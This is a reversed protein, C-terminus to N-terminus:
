AAVEATRIRSIVWAVETPHANLWFQAEQLQQSILDETTNNRIGNWIIADQAYAINAIPRAARIRTLADVVEFGNALMAAFAMSPARNIGMHCHVLVQGGDSVSKNIVDVGSDFWELTQNGGNDHTGLWWYSMDPAYQAVFKKDSWEGRLDVVDTIGINIWNALQNVAAQPDQTDLDGCVYIGSIVQCPRRWVSVPDLECIETTDSDRKHSDSARAIHNEKTSM